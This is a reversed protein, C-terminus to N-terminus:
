APDTKEDDNVGELIQREFPKMLIEFVQSVSDLFTNFYQEPVSTMMALFKTCNNALAHDEKVMDLLEKNLEYDIELEKSMNNPLQSNDIDYELNALMRIKTLMSAVAKEGLNHRVNDIASLSIVAYKFNDPDDEIFYKLISLEMKGLKDVNIEM